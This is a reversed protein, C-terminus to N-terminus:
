FCLKGPNMVNNPDFIGKVKKLVSTTQADRNCVMDAWIGYPRSFFAGQKMLEESGEAFLRQIKTVERPNGPDFPLSFECHCCVGQHLPQVYIGIDSTSYRVAESVSYITNVFEPTKNLTTLFFIDQCGGKYRLKWYPEKSPKLLAELVQSDRVGSIAPVLRLGFQQAIDKIDKEQFEARERPLRDRGAIGLILIWQPLEEKLARIQAGEEGLIYALNSSDLLLLEDGYRFRLLRYAFALLDDLEESPVFFLKHIKPLIECRISAWTVLGMAGQAAQVLRYYDVQSPGMPMVQAIHIEWQEELTSWDGAEGTRMMEGSGWVVELCRLPDPIEWQYKPVMTPQRELLSTLVSKNSRPLLPMSLRLGQKALEPQLQSYTVGPEIMVIRNRRDIRIIRKMGSLDVIVAGGVSPVTDGFFHPPGSSVPVLPTNTQNAWEVVRQVENANEPKVVLKPKRPPVFSHDRSYADLTEPDDIVSKMGVIKTLEDKDGM